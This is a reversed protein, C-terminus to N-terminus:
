AGNLVSVDAYYISDIPIYCVEDYKDRKDGGRKKWNIDVM